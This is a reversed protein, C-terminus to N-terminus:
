WHRGQKIFKNKDMQIVDQDKGSGLLFMHILNLSGELMQQPVGKQDLCLFTVEM